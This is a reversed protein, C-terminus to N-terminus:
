DLVRLLVGRPILVGMRWSMECWRGSKPVHFGLLLVERWGRVVPRARVQEQVLVAIYAFFIAM